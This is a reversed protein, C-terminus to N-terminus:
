AGMACACGGGGGGCCGGGAGPVASLQGGDSSMFASFVSLERESDSDCVPCNAPEEMHNMSRLREFRHDCSTCTFEYIPM